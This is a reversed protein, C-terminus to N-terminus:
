IRRMLEDYLMRNTLRLAADLHHRAFENADQEFPNSAYDGARKYKLVFMAAVTRDDIEDGKATFVQQAFAAYQNWHQIEHLISFIQEVYRDRSKRKSVVLERDRASFKAWGGVDDVYRWALAGFAPSKLAWTDIISDVIDNPLWDLEVSEAIMRSIVARLQTRHM